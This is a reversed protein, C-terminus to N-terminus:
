ARYGPARPSVGRRTSPCNQLIQYQPLKALTDGVTKELVIGRLEHLFAADSISIRIALRAVNSGPLAVNSGAVVLEDRHMAAVPRSGPM